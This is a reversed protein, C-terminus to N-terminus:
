VVIKLQDKGQDSQEAIQAKIGQLTSKQEGPGCERRERLYKILEKIISLGLLILEIRWM